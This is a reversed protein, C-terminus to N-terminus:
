IKKIKIEPFEDEIPNSITLIMKNIENTMLAISIDYNLKETNKISCEDFFVFEIQGINKLNYTSPPFSKVTTGNDFEIKNSIFPSDLKISNINFNTSILLDLVRLLPNIKKTNEIIIIKSNPKSMALYYIYFAMFTTYGISGKKEVKIVKEKDNFIQFYFKYWNSVYYESISVNTGIGLDKYNLLWSCWIQFPMKLQKYFEM